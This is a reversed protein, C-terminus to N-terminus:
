GAEAADAVTDVGARAVVLGVEGDGSCLEVRKLFLQRHDDPRVVLQLFEVTVACGTRQLRLSSPRGERLLHAIGGFSSVREPEGVVFARYPGCRSEPAVRLGRWRIAGLRASDRVDHRLHSGHAICHTTSSVPDPDLGASFPFIM